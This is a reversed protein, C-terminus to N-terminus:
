GIQTPGYVDEQPIWHQPLDWRPLAQPTWAPLYPSLQGQFLWQRLLDEANRQAGYLGRQGFGEPGYPQPTGPESGWPGPAQSPQTLQALPLLWDLATMMGYM